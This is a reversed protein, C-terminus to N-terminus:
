GQAPFCFLLNPAAMFVHVSNQLCTTSCSFPLQLCICM